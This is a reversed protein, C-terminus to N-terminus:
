RVESPLPGCERWHLTFTTEWTGELPPHIHNILICSRWTSDYYTDWKRHGVKGGNSTSHPRGHERWPPHIHNGLTPLRVEQPGSERRQLNFTTEWTGELPPHIHNGLTPLRWPPTIMIHIESRTSAAWMGEFHPHIHDGM